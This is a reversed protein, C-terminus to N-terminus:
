ILSAYPQPSFWRDIETQTPENPPPPFQNASCIAWGSGKDGLRALRAAMLRRLREMEWAHVYNSM